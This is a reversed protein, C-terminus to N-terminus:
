PSIMGWGYEANPYYYVLRQEGASTQFSVNGVSGYSPHYYTQVRPKSLPLRRWSVTDTVQWNAGAKTYVAIKDGTACRAAAIWCGRPDDVAASIGGEIKGCPPQGLNTWWGYYADFQWMNGNSDAILLWRATPTTQSYAVGPAGVFSVGSPYNNGDAIACGGAAYCRYLIADNGVMYVHGTAGALGETPDSADGSPVVGIDIRRGFALACSTPRGSTIAITPWTTAAM